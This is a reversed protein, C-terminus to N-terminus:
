EYVQWSNGFSVFIASQNEKLKVEAHEGTANFIKQGGTTKVTLEKGAAKVRAWIQAGAYGTATPLTLAQEATNEFYYAHNYEGTLSENTQKTRLASTETKGNYTVLVSFGVNPSTPNIYESGPALLAKATEDGEFHFEGKTQSSLKLVYGFAGVSKNQAINVLLGKCTGVTQVHCYEKANKANTSPEYLNV